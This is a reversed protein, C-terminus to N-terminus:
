PKDGVTAGSGKCCNGDLVRLPQHEKIPREERRSTTSNRPPASACGRTYGGFSQHVAHVGALNQWLTNSAHLTNTEALRPLTEAPRLLTEAPRPPAMRVHRCEGANPAHGLLHLQADLGRAQAWELRDPRARRSTQVGRRRGKVPCLPPTDMVGISRTM